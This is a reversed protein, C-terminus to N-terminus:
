VQVATLVPLFVFLFSSNAAWTVLYLLFSIAYLAYSEVLVAAVAKYLKGTGSQVGMARQVRRNQVVLRAIIMITLLVCLLLCIGTYAVGFYFVPNNSSPGRDPQFQQYMFTIGVAIIRGNLPLSNKGM